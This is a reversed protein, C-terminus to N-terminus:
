SVLVLVWFVEGESRVSAGLFWRTAQWLVHIGIDLIHAVNDGAKGHRGWGCLLRRGIGMANRVGEGRPLALSFPGVGQHQRSAGRVVRRLYRPHQRDRVREDAPWAAGTAVCRSPRPDLGSCLPLLIRRWATGTLVFIFIFTLVRQLTNKM